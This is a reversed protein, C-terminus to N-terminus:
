PKEGVSVRFGRSRWDQISDELRVAQFGRARLLEVAEVALV